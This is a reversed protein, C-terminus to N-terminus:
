NKGYKERTPSWARASRRTDHSGHVFPPSGFPPSGCSPAQDGITSARAAILPPEDEPNM